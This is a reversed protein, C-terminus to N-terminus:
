KKSKVLNLAGDLTKNLQKLEETKQQKAILEKMFEDDSMTQNTDTSKINKTSKITEAYAYNCILTTALLTTISINKM